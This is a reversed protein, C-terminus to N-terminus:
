DEERAFTLRAQDVVLWAAWLAINWFIQGELSFPDLDM